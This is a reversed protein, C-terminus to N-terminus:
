DDLLGYDSLVEIYIKQLKEIIDYALHYEEGDEKVIGTKEILDMLESDPYGFKFAPRFCRNHIEDLAFKMASAKMALLMDEKAYPDDLNFELKGIMNPREESM